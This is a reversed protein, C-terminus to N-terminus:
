ARVFEVPFEQLVEPGNKGIITLNGVQVGYREDTTIPNPQVVVAMNEQLVMPDEIAYDEGKAGRIDGRGVVPGLIDVGFGHALGDYIEYESDVIPAAADLIDQETNGPVLVELIDEYAEVAVDHLDQFRDTPESGVTLARQLQGNYGWHGAGLEVNVVDGDQLKRNSAQKWHLCKGQQPDDMPTSSIYSIHPEGGEQLYSYELEAKLELERVGPAVNEALTEMAGDTYSAATRLWEIEEDSKITRVLEYEATVDRLDADLGADIAVYHDHPLTIGYSARPGIVGITGTAADTGSIRDVIESAPDPTGWRTDEIETWADATPVHSSLGVFLTSKEAPDRFFVFYCHHHDLYNTLYYLNAHYRRGMGSNGYMVLADVSQEDMMERVAQERREFEAESFRPFDVAASNTRTM